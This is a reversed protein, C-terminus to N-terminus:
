PCRAAVRMSWVSITVKFITSKGAGTEGMIAYHGGLSFSLNLNDVVHFTSGDVMTYGFSMGELSICAEPTPLRLSMEVSKTLDEGLCDVQNAILVKGAEMSEESTSGNDKSDDNTCNEQELVNQPQHRFWPFVPPFLIDEQLGLVKCFKAKARQYEEHIPANGRYLLFAKTMEDLIVIMILLQFLREMTPDAVYVIWLLLPSILTFVSLLIVESCFVAMCIRRIDQQDADLARQLRIREENETAQSVVVEKCTVLDLLQANAYATKQERQEAWPTSLKWWVLKSVILIM